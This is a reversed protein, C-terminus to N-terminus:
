PYNGSTILQSDIMGREVATETEWTHASDLFFRKFEQGLFYNWRSYSYRKLNQLPLSIKGEGDLALLRFFEYIIITSM